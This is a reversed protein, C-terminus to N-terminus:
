GHFRSTSVVWDSFDVSVQYRALFKATRKDIGVHEIKGIKEHVQNIVDAGNVPKAPILPHEISSHDPTVLEVSDM